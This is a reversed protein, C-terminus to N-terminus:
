RLDLEIEEVTGREGDLEVEHQVRNGPRAGMIPMAVVRFRGAGLGFVTAEMEGRSNLGRTYFPPEVPRVWVSLRPAASGRAM